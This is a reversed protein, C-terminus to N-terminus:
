RSTIVKVRSRFTTELLYVSEQSCLSFIQKERLSHVITPELLLFYRGYSSLYTHSRTSEYVVPWVNFKYYPEQQLLIMSRMPLSYVSYSYM